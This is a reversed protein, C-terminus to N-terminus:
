LHGTDGPGRAERGTAVRDTISTPNGIMQEAFIPNPGMQNTMRISPATKAM